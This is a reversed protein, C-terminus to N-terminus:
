FAQVSITNTPTPEVAETVVIMPYTPEDAFDIIMASGWVLPILAATGADFTALDFHELDSRVQSEVGSVIERSATFSGHAIANGGSLGACFSFHSVTGWGEEAMDFDVIVPGVPAALDFTVAQRAYGAGVVEHALSGDLATEAGTSLAMYVTSEPM